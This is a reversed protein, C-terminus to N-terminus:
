CHSKTSIYVKDAKWSNFDTTSRPPTCHTRGNTFHTYVVDDRRTNVMSTAGKSSGLSQWYGTDKFQGTKSSGKYFCVYPYNCSAQASVHGSQSGTSAVAGASPALALGSGLALTAATLAIRKRANM